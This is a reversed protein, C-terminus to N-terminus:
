RRIRRLTVLPEAAQEGIISGWYHARHRLSQLSRPHPYPPTESEYCRMAALKVELTETIVEFTDPSFHQRPWLGTSSPTEFGLVERIFARSPRTAVMVADHLVQHDRNIDGDCHTFVIQPRLEDIVQELQQNLDIQALTDLRQDPLMLCNFSAFGIMAAAQRAHEQQAIQEGPTGYRVSEGECAVLAHVPHGRRVLKALSGGAGLIEDDPHAAIVLVPALKAPEM